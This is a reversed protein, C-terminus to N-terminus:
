GSFYSAVTTALFSIILVATVVYIAGSIYGMRGKQPERTTEQENMNEVM